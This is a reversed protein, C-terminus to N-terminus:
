ATKHIPGGGASSRTNRSIRTRRPNNVSVYSGKVSNGSTAWGKEIDKLERLHVQNWKEQLDKKM